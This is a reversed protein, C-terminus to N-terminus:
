LDDLIKQAKNALDMFEGLEDMNMKRPKTDKICFVGIPLGSYKDLLKMGAYFRIYPHGVVYPNDSFRDDNLTDECILVNNNVLAHGCFSVDQSGEDSEIGICAAYVEKDKDLLSVTTIPIKLKESSEKLLKIFRPDNKNDLLGRKYLAELRKHENEPIPAKKM